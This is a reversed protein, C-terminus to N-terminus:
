TNAHVADLTASQDRQAITSAWSLAEADDTQGCRIETYMEGDPDIDYVMLDIPLERFGLSQGAADRRTLRLTPAPEVAWGEVRVSVANIWPLRALPQALQLMMAQNIHLFSMTAIRLPSPTVSSTTSTSGNKITVSSSTTLAIGVELTRDRKLSARVEDIIASPFLYMDATGPLPNIAVMRGENVGDHGYVRAVVTYGPSSLINLRFGVPCEGEGFFLKLVYDSPLRSPRGLEIYTNPDTDALAEVQGSAVPVNEEPSFIDIFQAVAAFRVGAEPTFYEAQTGLPLNRWSEGFTRPAVSLPLTLPFISRTEASIPTRGGILGNVALIQSAQMTKTFMVRVDTVLTTSDVDFGDVTVGLTGEDLELVGAPYGFVPVLDGTVGWDPTVTRNDTGGDPNLYTKTQTSRGKLYKDILEDVHRYNPSLAASTVNLNPISAETPKQLTKGLQGSNVLDSFLQRLQAGLDDQLLTKRVEVEKLRRISLGQLKYKGTEDTETSGNVVVTGAYRNRWNSLRDPRWQVQVTDRPGIGLTLPDGEFTAERCDGNGRVEMRRVGGDLYLPTGSTLPPNLELVHKEEGQPDLVRLRYEAEQNM